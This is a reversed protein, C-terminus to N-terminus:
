RLLRTHSEQQREFAVGRYHPQDARAKRSCRCQQLKCCSCQCADIGAAIMVASLAIAKLSKKTFNMIIECKGAQAFLYVPWGLLMFLVAIQIKVHELKM